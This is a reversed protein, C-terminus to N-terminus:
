CFRRKVKVYENWVMKELAVAFVRMISPKVGGPPWGCPSGPASVGFWSRQSLTLDTLFEANDRM